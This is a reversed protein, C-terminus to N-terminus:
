QNRENKKLIDMYTMGAVKELASPTMVYVQGFKRLENKEFTDPYKKIYKYFQSPVQGILAMADKGSMLTPENLDITRIPENNFYESKDDGTLAVMGQRTVLWKSGVQRISGAPFRQPYKQLTQKVYNPAKGWIKTAATTDLIQNDTLDFM